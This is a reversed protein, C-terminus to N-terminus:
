IVKLKYRRLQCLRADNARWQCGCAICKYTGAKTQPANNQCDPCKSRIHLSERYSDLANEIDEETIEVNYTSSLKKKAYEWAAREQHLLSIDQNFDHHNLIAHALEHLLLAKQSSSNLASYYITQKEPSWCFMDGLQFKLKPYDKELKKVLSNKLVM